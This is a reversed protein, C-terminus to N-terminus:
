ISTLWGRVEQEANGSRDWYVSLLGLELVSRLGIFAYRYFGHQALMLSNTLEFESESFPFYHGSSFKEVTQPILDGLQRYADFLGEIREYESPTQEFFDDTKQRVAEPSSLASPLLM